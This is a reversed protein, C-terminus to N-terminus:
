KIQFNLCKQTRKHTSLNGKTIERGCNDCIVREKRQELIKDKNAEYHEKYYQLIKDKNKNYHRKDNKAVKEKNDNRYQKRQQTLKEKNDDRYEKNYQLIKDKNTEYYKKRQELIQEKNDGRWEKQTRTPITCNLKSKYNDIYGREMTNLESKNSCAYDIIKTMVWSDWGGNERICKYLKYNYKRSNENNCVRKHNHKRRTFNCSSGIYVNENDYDDQKKIMYILGKSYDPM